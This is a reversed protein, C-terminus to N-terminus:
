IAKGWWEWRVWLDKEKVKANGIREKWREWRVWAGEVAESNGIREKRWEWHV